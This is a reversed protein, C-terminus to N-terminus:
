NFIVFEALNFETAEEFHLFNASVDISSVDITSVDNSAIFPDNLPVLIDESPLQKEEQNERQKKEDKKKQKLIKKRDYCAYKMHRKISSSRMEKNCYKCKRKKKAHVEFIHYRMNDKRTYKKGCIDCKFKEPM